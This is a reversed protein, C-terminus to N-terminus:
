MEDQKHKLEKKTETSKEIPQKYEKYHLYTGKEDAPKDVEVQIRNQEAYPDHRIGTVQWSVKLGSNGGSIKFRNDSIEESIYVPAYGGICTLQYRFEMNLAEFYLPLQVVAEGNNDLIINGNYVNMMDPSEVFSHYLYKNEPDLPHDIKFSGSSKSLTGTVNVDGYFYGAYSDPGGGVTKGFVGYLTADNPSAAYGLVGIYQNSSNDSETTVKGEVGCYGGTFFGGYGWYDSNACIGSVGAGDVNEATNHFHAVGLKISSQSSVVHFPFQPSDMNPGIGVNGLNYILDNGSQIWSTNGSLDTDPTWVSGNWKLVQGSVPTGSVPNGAIKSVSPDPYTGSLDGGATGTLEGVSDTKPIWNTGDYKLVQGTVPTGSVPIGSIGSVTTSTWTGSLDGAPDGMSTGTEDTQPTWASGSWKLVQGTTPTGSVLNGAIKSVTPDPYTGSLDGGATGIVSGVSDTKPIWQEGDWKLVQGIAPTGSVPNGAIKSVSPDPYTGSLDGGATGTASGQEDPQPEWSTGNWKLVYNNQPVGSVPNGAINDANDANDANDSYESRYAYPVTLIETAPSLTSGDITVELTLGDSDSFVSAPIPTIDGLTVSYLGGTVQVFQTETWTGITFTISKVGTVPNENEYLKGQYSIKHPVTQALTM